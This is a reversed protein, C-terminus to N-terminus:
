AELLREPTLPWYSPPCAFWALPWNSYPDVAFTAWIFLSEFRIFKSTLIRTAILNLYLYSIQVFGVSCFNMHTFPPKWVTFTYPLKGPSSWVSTVLPRKMWSNFYLSHTWDSESSWCSCTENLCQPQLFVKMWLSLREIYGCLALSILTRRGIPVGNGM